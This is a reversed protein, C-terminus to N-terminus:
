EEAQCAKGEVGLNQTPLQTPDMWISWVTQPLWKEPNGPGFYPDTLSLGNLFCLSM